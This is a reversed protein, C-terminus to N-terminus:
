FHEWKVVETPHILPASFTGREQGPHFGLVCSKRPQKKKKETRILM